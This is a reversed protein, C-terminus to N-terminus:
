LLSSRGALYASIAQMPLNRFQPKLVQLNELGVMGFDGFDVFRANITEADLMSCLRVRYWNGDSHRGAFYKDTLLDSATMSRINKASSYFANMESQLQSLDNGERWSQM